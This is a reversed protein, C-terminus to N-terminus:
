YCGTAGHTMLSCGCEPCPKDHYWGVVEEINVGAEKIVDALIQPVQGKDELTLLMVIIDGSSFMRGLMRSEFDIKVEALTRGVMRKLEVPVGAATQPAAATTRDRDEM